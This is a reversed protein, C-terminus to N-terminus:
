AAKNKLDDNAATAPTIPRAAASMCLAAAFIGVAAGIFGLVAGGLAFGLWFDSM